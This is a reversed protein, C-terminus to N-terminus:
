YSTCLIDFNMLATVAHTVTIQNTTKASVYTGTAAGALANTPQLACHGITTMGNVVVDDTTAATTVLTAAITCPQSGIVGAATNTLCGATTFANFTPIGSGPFSYKLAPSAGGSYISMGSTGSGASSNIQVLTAGAGSNLVTTSNAFLDIRDLSNVQDHTRYSNDSYKCNIWYTTGTYGQWQICNQQDATAGGKIIVTEAGDLPNAFSNIDGTFLSQLNFVAKNTTTGGIQFVPTGFMTALTCNASSTCASSAATQYYSLGNMNEIALV